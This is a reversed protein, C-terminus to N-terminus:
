AAADLLWDPLLLVVLDDEIRAIGEVYPAHAVLHPLDELQAAGLTHVREIGDVVLGFVGDFTECVVISASAGEPLRLLTALRYVPITTGRLVILGDGGPGAAARASPPTHRVIERVARIDVAYRQEGLLFVVVQREFGALELSM